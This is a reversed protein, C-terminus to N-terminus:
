FCDELQLKCSNKPTLLSPAADTTAIAPSLLFCM